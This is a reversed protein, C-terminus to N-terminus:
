VLKVYDESLNRNTAVEKIFQEYIESVVDQIMQREEETIPRYGTSFDKYKGGKIVTVNVGIKDLLRSFEPSMSIVGISGTITARDAVIYDCASAIYYGGSTAIESLWAVTPKSAGKIADAIEESAVISGGPSNIELVIAKVSADDEAKKLAKKFDRPTVVEEFLLGGTDEVFIEGHVNIVAVKDGFSVSTHRIVLYAVSFSLLVLVTLSVLLIVIKKM